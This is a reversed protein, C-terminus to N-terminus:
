ITQIPQLKQYIFWPPFRSFLVISVGPTKCQSAILWIQKQLLGVERLNGTNSVRLDFQKIWACFRSNHFNSNTRKSMNRGRSKSVSRSRSMSINRSWNRNRNKSRRRSRNRNRSLSRVKSWSKSRNRRRSRRRSRCWTCINYDCHPHGFYQLYQRINAVVSDNDSINNLVSEFEFDFEFEYM